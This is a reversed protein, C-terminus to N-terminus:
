GRQAPNAILFWIFFGIFIADISAPLLVIPETMGIIERWTLVIVDFAKALIGLWVLARNQTVDRAVFLYGLGILAVCYGFDAWLDPGIGPAATISPAFALDFAWQRALMLPIGIAFNFLAAIFFLGSWSLVLRAVM